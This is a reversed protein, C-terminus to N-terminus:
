GAAASKEGTAEAKFLRAVFFHPVFPFFHFRLFIYHPLTYALYHVSFDFEVLPLNKTHPLTENKVDKRTAPLWM